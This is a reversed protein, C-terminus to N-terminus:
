NRPSVSFQNEVTMPPGLLDHSFWLQNLTDRRSVVLSCLIYSTLSFCGVQLPIESDLEFKPVKETWPVFKKTESDIFYDFVTGASPFKITKFETVWWKSFEVRYDVLQLSFVFKLKHLPKRLIAITIGTLVFTEGRTNLAPYRLGDFLVSDLHYTKPFGIANDVAFINVWNIANDFKQAVLTQHILLPSVLQM